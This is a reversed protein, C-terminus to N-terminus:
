ATDMGPHRGFNEGAVVRAESHRLRVARELDLIDGSSDRQFEFDPLFGGLENLASREVAGRGFPGLSPDGELLLINELRIFCPLEIHRDIHRCEAFLCTKKTAPM